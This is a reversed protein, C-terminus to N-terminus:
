FIGNVRSKIYEERENIIRRDIVKIIKDEIRRMKKMRIMYTEQNIQKIINIIYIMNDYIDRKKSSM